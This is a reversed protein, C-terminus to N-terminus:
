AGSAPPRPDQCICMSWLLPVVLTTGGICGKWFFRGQFNSYLNVNMDVMGM